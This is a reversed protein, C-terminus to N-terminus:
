AVDPEFVMPNRSLSIANARDCGMPRDEWNRASVQFQLLLPTLCYDAPDSQPNGGLAGVSGSKGL